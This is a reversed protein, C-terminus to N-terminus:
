LPAIDALWSANVYAALPRDSMALAVAFHALVLAIMAAYPAWGSRVFHAWATDRSRATWLATASGTMRAGHVLMTLKPNFLISAGCPSSGQNVSDSDARKGNSSLAILPRM